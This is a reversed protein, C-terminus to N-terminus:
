DARPAGTPGDGSGSAIGSRRLGDELSTRRLGFERAADPADARSDAALIEVAHAPMRGAILTALPRGPILHIRRRRGALRDALADATVVDPGELGFTGATETARDDAAALVAAVDEVFVPALEQRGSGLVFRARAARATEELWPSGPGYVHTSRVIAHQLGSGRIAEEARGKARLYPNSGEPDAGPYSLFLVRRLGAEDAAALTREVSGLNADAIDPATLGGALHVLTHADHFLIALSEPDSLDDVAVKAGLARTPEAAARRRVVARVEPSRGVLMPLVARGVLGSAGVVVVPM